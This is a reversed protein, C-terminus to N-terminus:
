TIASTQCKVFRWVGETKAVICAQMELFPPRDSGIVRMSTSLLMTARSGSADYVPRFIAFGTSSKPSGIIPAAVGLKAWPCDEVFTGGGDLPIEPFFDYRPPKAGWDLAHKGVEVIVACDDASAHIVPAAPAAVAPAALALMALAILLSRV